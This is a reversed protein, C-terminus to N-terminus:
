SINFIRAQKSVLQKILEARETKARQIRLSRLQYLCQLLEFRRSDSYGDPMTSLLIVLHQVLETECNRSMVFVDKPGAVMQTSTELPNRSGFGACCDLGLQVAAEFALTRRELNARLNIWDRVLPHLSIRLWPEGETDAPLETVLSLRLFEKLAGEFLEINLTNAGDYGGLDLKRRFTSRPLYSVLKELFTHKKIPAQSIQAQFLELSISRHDLCALLELLAEKSQKGGYASEDLLNFSLEWTTFASLSRKKSSEDEHCYDWVRPVTQLVLKKRKEFDQLFKQYSIKPPGRIYSRAQDIALPLFGLANAVRSADENSCPKGTLLLVAEQESFGEVSITTGLDNLDQSRTTILVTGHGNRPTPIFNQIYQFEVPDDYNDLVLLWDSVHNGVLDMFESIQSWRWEETELFPNITPIRLALRLRDIAQYITRRSTANLWLIVKYSKSLEGRLCFDLGLQTKGQGGMGSLVVITPLGGTHNKAANDLRMSLLPRNVYRSIPRPYIFLKLSRLHQQFLQIYAPQLVEPVDSVNINFTNHTSKDGQHVSGGSVTMPGYSNGSGRARSNINM